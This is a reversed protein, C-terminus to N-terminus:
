KNSIPSFIFFKLGTKRSVPVRKRPSSISFFQFVRICFEEGNKLYDSCYVLCFKLTETSKDRREFEALRRMRGISILESNDSVFATFVQAEQMARREAKTMQSQKVGTTVAVPVDTPDTRESSDEEGSRLKHGGKEAVKEPQEGKNDISDDAKPDKKSSLANEHEKEKVKELRRLKKLEKASHIFM